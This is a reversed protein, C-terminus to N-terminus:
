PQRLAHKSIMHTRLQQNKFLTMNIDSLLIQCSSDMIRLSENIVYPLYKCSFYFRFVHGTGLNVASGDLGKPTATEPAIGRYM